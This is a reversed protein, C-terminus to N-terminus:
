LKQPHDQPVLLQPSNGELSWKEAPVSRRTMLLSPSSPVSSHDRDPVWPLRQCWAQTVRFWWGSALVLYWTLTLTM